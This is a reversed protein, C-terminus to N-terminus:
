QKSRAEVQVLRGLKSAADVTHDLKAEGNIIVILTETIVIIQVGAASIGLPTKTVGSM